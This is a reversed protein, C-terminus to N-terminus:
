CLICIRTSTMKLVLTSGNDRFGPNAVGPKKQNKKGIKQQWLPFRKKIHYIIWYIQVQNKKYFKRGGVIDWKKGM